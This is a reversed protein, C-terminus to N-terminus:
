IYCIIKYYITTLLKLNIVLYLTGIIKLANNNNSIESTKSKKDLIPLLNEITNIDPSQPSLKLLTNMMNKIFHIECVINYKM